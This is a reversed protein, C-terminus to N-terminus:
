DGAGVALGIGLLVGAYVGLPVKKPRETVREGMGTESNGSGEADGDARNLLLTDRFEHGTIAISEIGTRNMRFDFMAPRQMLERYDILKRDRLETRDLRFGFSYDHQHKGDGFDLRYYIMAHPEAAPERALAGASVLSLILIFLLSIRM